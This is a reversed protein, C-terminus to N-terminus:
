ITLRLASVGLKLVNLSHARKSFSIGLMYMYNVYQINKALIYTKYGKLWLKLNRMIKPWCDYKFSDTVILLRSISLIHQLTQQPKQKRFCICITWFYIQCDSHIHRRKSLHKVNFVRQFCSVGKIAFPQILRLLCLWQSVFHFIIM